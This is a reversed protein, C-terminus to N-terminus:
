AASFEAPAGADENGLRTLFPWPYIGRDHGDHLTEVLRLQGRQIMAM